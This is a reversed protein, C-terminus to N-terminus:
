SWHRARLRRELLETAEHFVQCARCEGFGYVAAIDAHALEGGLRLDLVGRLQSPLGAIALMAHRLSDRTELEAVPDPGPLRDTLEARAPARWRRELDLYEAASLGAAAAVEEDEPPRGLRGTLVQRLRADESTWRRQDRTATDGNRIADLIAGRIRPAAFAQFEGREPRYAGAAQILGITGDQVLDDLEIHAPLRRAM